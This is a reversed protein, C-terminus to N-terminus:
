AKARGHDDLGDDSPQPNAGPGPMARNVLLNALVGIAGSLTLPLLPLDPTTVVVFLGRQLAYQTGNGGDIWGYAAWGSLLLIGTIGLTLAVLGIRLGTHKPLLVCQLVVAPVLLSAWLLHYGLLSEPSAACGWPGCIDLGIPLDYKHLQTAGYVSAAWVLLGLAKFTLNSFSDTQKPM